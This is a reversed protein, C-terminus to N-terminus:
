LNENVDDIINGKQIHKKLINNYAYKWITESGLHTRENRGLIQSLKVNHEKWSIGGSADNLLMPQINDMTRAFKAEPTEQAEFEEWLDYM